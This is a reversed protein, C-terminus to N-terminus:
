YSHPCEVSKYTGNFPTTSIKSVANNYVIGDLGEGVYGYNRFADIGGIGESPVWYGALDKM